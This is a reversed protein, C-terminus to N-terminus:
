GKPISGAQSPLPGEVHNPPNPVAGRASSDPKDRHYAPASDREPGSRARPLAQRDVAVVVARARPDAM